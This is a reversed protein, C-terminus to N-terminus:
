VTGSVLQGETQSEIAFIRRNIQDLEAELEQRTADHTAPVRRLRALLRGAQRYLEPVTGAVAYM